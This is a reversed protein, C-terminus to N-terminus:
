QIEESGTFSIIYVPNMGMMMVYSGLQKERAAMVQSVSLDTIPLERVLKM